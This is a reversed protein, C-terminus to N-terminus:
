LVRTSQCIVRHLSPAEVVAEALRRGLPDDVFDVAQEPGAPNGGAIAGLELGRCHEVDESWSPADRHLPINAGVMALPVGNAQDEDERGDHKCGGASTVLSYLELFHM